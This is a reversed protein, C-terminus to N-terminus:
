ALAPPGHKLRAIWDASADHLAGGRETRDPPAVAQTAAVVPTSTDPMASAALATLACHDGTHAAASHSRHDEHGSPDAHHHAHGAHEGHSAGPLAVGYIPCVEAVPIGRMQAAGAAFMPVAAKLVLACVAVWLAFRSSSSRRSMFTM